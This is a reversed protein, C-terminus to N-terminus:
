RIERNNTDIMGASSFSLRSAGVSGADFSISCIDGNGNMATTRVFAIRIVGPTGTNIASMSGTMLQGASVHPTGFLVQPDYELTMEVGAVNQLGDGRVSYSGTQLELISFSSGNSFTIKSVPANSGDGSGCGCLGLLLWLSCLLPKWVNKFSLTAGEPKKYNFPAGIYSM